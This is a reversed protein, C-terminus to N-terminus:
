LVAIGSEPHCIFIKAVPETISLNPSNVRLYDWRDLITQSIFNRDTDNDVLFLIRNIPFTDFLFDIEYECGKRKESFGRLDM